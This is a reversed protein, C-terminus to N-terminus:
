FETKLSEVDRGPEGLRAYAPRARIRALAWSVAEARSAAIGATILTDMTEVDAPAFRTMVPILERGAPEGSTPRGLRMVTRTAEPAGAEDFTFELLTTEPLHGAVYRRFEKLAAKHQYMFADLAREYTERGGPAELFVRVLSEGPEIVPADGYQLIAVGRVVRAPFRERAQQDLERQFRRIVDRDM